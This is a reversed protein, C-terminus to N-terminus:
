PLGPVAPDEPTPERWKTVNNEDHRFQSLAQYVRLRARNISGLPRHEPLTRWPNFSLNECLERQAPADFTQVPLTLTAVKVPPSLLPSWPVMPNEVPMKAPDTQLQVMFDFSAAQRALDDKLRERLFNHSPKGPVESTASQHPKLSYQVIRDGLAYATQSWYPLQLLNAAKKMTLLHSWAIGPHTLAFWVFTLGGKYLAEELDYFARLNPAVFPKVSMLLLDLTRDGPAGQWLMEGDVEMLKISLSRIDKLIDKRPAAPYANAFRVWAQYTHPRAFLGVRLEEPLGAEVTFTARVAAHGKAHTGRYTTGSLFKQEIIKKILPILKAILEEEGPELREHPSLQLTTMSPVMVKRIYVAREVNAPMGHGRALRGASEM